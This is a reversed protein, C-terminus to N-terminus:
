SGARSSAAAAAHSGCRSAAPACARRLTRRMDTRRGHRAREHRRTRRLPTAVELRSMLRYLQALEDPELADFRKGALLEEDSALALPVEVEDSRARREAARGRAGATARRPRRRRRVSAPRARRAADVRAGFVVRVGRRVGAVHAPDSVFM